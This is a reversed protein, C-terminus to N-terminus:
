DLNAEKKAADYADLAEYFRDEAPTGVFPLGGNLLLDAKLAAEALEVALAFRAELAAKEDKLTKIETLALRERNEAQALKQRLAALEANRENDYKERFQRAVEAEALRDEARRRRDPMENLDAFTMSQPWADDVNANPFCGAAFGDRYAESVLRRLKACEAELEGIRKLALPMDNIHSLLPVGGCTHATDYEASM